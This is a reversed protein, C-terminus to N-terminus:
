APVPGWGPSDTVAAVKELNRQTELLGRIRERDRELSTRGTTHPPQEDIIQDLRDRVEILQPRDGPREGHATPRADLYVSLIPAEGAEHEAVARLAQHLVREDPGPESFALIIPTELAM